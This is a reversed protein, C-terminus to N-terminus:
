SRNNPRVFDKKCVIVNKPPFTTLVGIFFAFQEDASCVNNRIRKGFTLYMQFSTQM